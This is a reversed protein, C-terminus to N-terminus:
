KELCYQTTLTRKYNNLLIILYRARASSLNIRYVVAVSGTQSVGSPIKPTDLNAIVSQRDTRKGALSGYVDYSHNGLAERLFEEM